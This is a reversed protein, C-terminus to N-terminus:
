GREIRYSILIDACGDILTDAIVQRGSIRIEREEPIREENVSKM